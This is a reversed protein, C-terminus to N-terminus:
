IRKLLYNLFDYIRDRTSMDKIYNFNKWEFIKSVEGKLKGRDVKGYDIKIQNDHYIEEKEMFYIM